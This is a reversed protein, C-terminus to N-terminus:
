SDDASGDSRGGVAVLVMAPEPLQSALASIDTDRTVPYVPHGLRLLGRAFVGGMEGVGILVVPQKMGEPRKSAM